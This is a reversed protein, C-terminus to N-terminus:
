NLGEQKKDNRLNVTDKFAARSLAVTKKSLGGSKRTGGIPKGFAVISGQQKIRPFHCTLRDTVNVSFVEIKQSIFGCLGSFTL